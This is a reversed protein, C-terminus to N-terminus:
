FLIINTNVVILHVKQIFANTMPNQSNTIVICEAIAIKFQRLLDNEIEEPTIPKKPPKEKKIFVIPEPLDIDPLVPNVPQSLMIRIRIYTGAKELFDKSNDIEQAFEMSANNAKDLTDM